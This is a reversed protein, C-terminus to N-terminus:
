PYSAVRLKNTALQNSHGSYGAVHFCTALPVGGAAPKNQFCQVGWHEFITFYVWTNSSHKKTLMAYPHPPAFNTFVFKKWCKVRHMVTTKYSQDLLTSSYTCTCLLSLWNTNMGSPKKIEVDLHHADHKHPFAYFVPSGNILLPERSLKKNFAMFVHTEYTDVTKSQGDKLKGKRKRRGKKNIWFLQIKKGTRNTFKVTLPHKEERSYLALLNM